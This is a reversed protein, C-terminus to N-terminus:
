IEYDLIQLNLQTLNWSSSSKPVICKCNRDLHQVMKEKSGQIEWGHIIMNMDPRCLQGCEASRVQLRSGCHNKGGSGRICCSQQLFEIEQSLNEGCIYNILSLGFKLGYPLPFASVSRYLGCSDQKLGLEATAFNCGQSKISNLVTYCTSGIPGVTVLLKLCDDEQYRTDFEWSLQKARKLFLKNRKWNMLEKFAQLFVKGIILNNGQFLQLRTTLQLLTCGSQPQKWIQLKIRTGAIKKSLDRPRVLNSELDGM